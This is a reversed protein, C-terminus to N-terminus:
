SVRCSMVETFLDEYEKLIKELRFDEARARGAQSLRKRLAEDKLLSLIAEALADDDDVPVLLGNVDHTIIEDPGSPCRTSVVPIGCAMAEVIVNGFGEYASSVTFVTGRVIYPFPNEQFGTFHVHEAIGLSGALAILNAKQDGEGIIILKARMERLVKKISRLLMAYNKQPVLRGCAVIRPEDGTMWPFELFDKDAARSEIADIDFPNYIVRCQTDTVGYNLCLDDKIGKSVAVVTAAGPYVHRILNKKIIWFREERSAMSLHAHESIIVPVAMGAWKVALLTLYNAYTLLSYILRPKKEKIVKALSSVLQLFDYSGKKDLSLIDIHNPHDMGWGNRDNFVIVTPTYTNRDLHRLQHILVREAGGGGLSPIVCLINDTSRAKLETIGM